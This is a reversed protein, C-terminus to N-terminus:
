PAREITTSSIAARTLAPPIAAPHIGAEAAIVLIARVHMM